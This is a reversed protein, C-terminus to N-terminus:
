VVICVSKVMIEILSPLVALKTNNLHLYNCIKCINIGIDIGEKLQGTLM